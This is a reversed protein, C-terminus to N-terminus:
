CYSGCRSSWSFISGSGFSWKSRGISYSLKEYATPDVGPLGVLFQVVELLGNAAASRIAQNNIAVPDWANAHIAPVLWQKLMNKTNRAFALEIENRLNERHAKAWRIKFRPDQCIESTEKDIRCWRQLEDLSTAKEMLM